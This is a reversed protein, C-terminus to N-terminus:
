QRVGAAVAKARQYDAPTPKRGERSAYVNAAWGAANKMGRRVGLEVLAALDRAQGQLKRSEKQLAERDIRVLEGEVVEIKRAEKVEVPAGCRPCASVGPRFINACAPCQQVRVDPDSEGNGKRGKRGALSWERDDDPLGHREWNGVHDLIILKDKGPAPRLGRGNGQMYVIVSQTPRLWQVVEISPIDVGEILLQVNTIIKTEGAKFRALVEARENNTMNGEIMEAQIGAAQYSEAVHQAHKISVCMVVCRKGLTLTQYHRVADGMIAPKDMRKEVEARDYDGMTTRVGELDASVPPGLLEYDCLFGADILQRITPGEVLNQFIGDLGKGDTRQPTATLGIVKAGPYADLVRKYTEAAARHAEDIIILDPPDYHDLRRVLTMVSAVQAPLPSRAKGSAILGHELKQLWLARSTQDLLENQHVCFLSRRGAQAARSMMYVTIATKGAGTPAQMLVRQNTRLAERTRDILDTQYPRLQLSV